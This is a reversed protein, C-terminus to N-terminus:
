IQGGAADMYGGRSARDVARHPTHDDQRAADLDGAEYAEVLQPTTVFRGRPRRREAHEQAAEGGDPEHDDDARQRAPARRRAGPQRGASGTSTSRRRLPRRLREHRVGAVHAPRSHRWSRGSARRRARAAVQRGDHRGRWARDRVPRAARAASPELTLPIVVFGGDADRTVLGESTLKTLAHYVPGRPLDLRAPRPRRAVLPPRGPHRPEDRARPDRPLRRTRRSSSGASSAASTPSRRARARRPATSRPLSCPTRAAAHGGRRRPVRLTALADGLLPSGGVRGRRDRHGEFKDVGKARSACRPTPSTRASSTSPSAAPTAAVAPGDLVAKNMCVLLM